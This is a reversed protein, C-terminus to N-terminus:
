AGPYGGAGKIQEIQGIHDADHVRQFALWEKCNLLGFFPHEFRAELDPSAPWGRVAELLSARAGRLREVLAALPQGEEATQSGTDRRGEPAEGSALSGVVRAVSEEAATVHRLVDAISWQDPGPRFAAQEENVGDLAALLRARSEEILGLMAPLDKKAQHEMYSVLRQRVDDTVM